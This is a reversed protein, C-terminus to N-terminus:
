GGGRIRGLASLGVRKRGDESGDLLLEAELELGGFGRGADKDDVVEFAGGL